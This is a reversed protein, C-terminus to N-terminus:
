IGIIGSLVAVGIGIVMSIRAGYFIRSLVDRGLQDTGLVHSGSLWDPASLAISLNQANPDFPSIWPALLGMLFLVIVALGGFLIKPRMFLRPRKRIASEPVPFEGAFAM